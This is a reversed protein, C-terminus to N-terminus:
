SGGLSRRYNLATKRCARVRPDTDELLIEIDATLDQDGDSGTSQLPLGTARHFVGSIPQPWSHRSLFTVKM